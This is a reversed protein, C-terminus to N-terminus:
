QADSPRVRTLMFEAIRKAEGMNPAFNDAPVDALLNMANINEAVPGALGVVVLRGSFRSMATSILQGLVVAATDDVYRTKSLDLILAEYGSVDQSVVRGLERASAVSVRDPFAVLGTRAGFPDAGKRDNDKSIIVRDLLPLSLLRDLESHESRKAGILAAAVIGVLMADAFNVFLALLITIVVVVVYSKPIRHIRAMLRRDIFNWGIVILIGSLAAYPIGEAIERVGTVLLLLALGAIVGAAQSRGGCAVNAMTAGNMGGPLGGIAGAAVNGLGHSVIEQNPRHYIGTISEVQLAVMLTSVSSLVAIIFAPELMRVLVEVSLIPLYLSPAEFPIDGIVPASRFVLMGALASLVLAMFYAPAFRTLRRPWFSSVALSIGTVAVAHLNANAIAGPWARASSVIGGGVPPAGVAPFVQSAIILIGAATFFGSVLLYPIYSVYRGLKLVGFSVQILGALMAATLAEGLNDAYEAVVISMGVAVFLNPGGIMGRTGGFVAAFLCVAIAGYLGAVPGLGSVIGYGMAQPLISAGSTIGGYADGKLDSIRYAIRFARVSRIRQAFKTALPM